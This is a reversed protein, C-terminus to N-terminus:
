EWKKHTFKDIELYIITLIPFFFSSFMGPGRTNDNRGTGYTYTLRFQMTILLPSSLSSDEVEYRRRYYQGGGGVAVLFAM